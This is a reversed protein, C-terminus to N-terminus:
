HDVAKCCTNFTFIERTITGDLGIGEKGDLCWQQWRMKGITQWDCLQISFQCILKLREDFVVNPTLM